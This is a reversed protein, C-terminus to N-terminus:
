AKSCSISADFANLMHAVFKKVGYAKGYCAHCAFVLTFTKRLWLTLKGYGFHGNAMLLAISENRLLWAEIDSLVGM